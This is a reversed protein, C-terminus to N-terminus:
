IIYEVYVYILQPDSPTDALLTNANFSTHWIDQPESDPPLEALLTDADFSTNWIDDPQLELQSSIGIVQQEEEDPQSGEPNFIGAHQLIKKLLDTKM